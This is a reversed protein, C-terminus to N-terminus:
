LVHRLIRFRATDKVRRQPMNALELLRSYLTYFDFFEVGFHAAEGMEEMLRTRFTSIQLETPLLVWIKGFLKKNLLAKIHEIAAQTKGAGAPGTLLTGAM